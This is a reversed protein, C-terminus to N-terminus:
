KKIIIYVDENEKKMFYKERAIKELQNMNNDLNTKENKVQLIKDQYFRRENELIKEKSALQIQLFLDNSDVFAIWTIFFLTTLSYFNKCFALIYNFIKKM